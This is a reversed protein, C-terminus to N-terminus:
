QLNSQVWVFLANIFEKSLLLPYKKYMVRTLMGYKDHCLQLDSSGIPFCAAKDVASCRNWYKCLSMIRLFQKTDEENLKIILGGQEIDVSHSGRFIRATTNEMEMSRNELSLIQKEELEGPSIVTSVAPPSILLSENRPCISPTKNENNLILQTLPGCTLAIFLICSAILAGVIRSRNM